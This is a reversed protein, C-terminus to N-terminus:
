TQRWHSRAPDNGIKSIKWAVDLFKLWHLESPTTPKRMPFGPLWKPFAKSLIDWIRLQSLAGLWAPAVTCLVEQLFGGWFFVLFRKFEFFSSKILNSILVTTLRTVLFFLRSIISICLQGGSWQLKAPLCKSWHKTEIQVILEPNVASEATNEPGQSTDREMMDLVQSHTKGMNREATESDWQRKMFGKRHDKNETEAVCGSRSCRKGSLHQREKWFAGALKYEWKQTPM